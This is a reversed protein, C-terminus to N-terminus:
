QAGTYLKYDKSHAIYEESIAPVYASLIYEDNKIIYGKNKALDLNKTGVYFQYYPLWCESRMDFLYTLKSCYIKNINMYDQMDEFYYYKGEKLQKLAQQYSIVPYNVPKFSNYYNIKIVTNYSYKIVISIEDIANALNIIDNDSKQNILIYDTDELSEKSITEFKGKFLISNNKMFSEVDIKQNDLKNVITVLTNQIEINYKDSIIGMSENSSYFKYNEIQYQNILDYLIEKKEKITFTHDYKLAIPLEKFKNSQDLIVFNNKDFENLSIGPFVDGAGMGGLDLPNSYSIVKEKAKSDNRQMFSDLDNQNLQNTLKEIQNTASALQQKLTQTDQYNKYTFISIFILCACTFGLTLKIYLNSFDFKRQKEMKEIMQQKFSSDAKINDLEHIYKNKM